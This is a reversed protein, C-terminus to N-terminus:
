TSFALDGNACLALAGWSAGRTASPVEEVKAANWSSAALARLAELSSSSVGVFQPSPAARSSPPPAAASGNSSAGNEASGAPAKRCVVLAGGRPTRSWCLSAIEAAPVEVSTGPGGGAGAGSPGGAKRWVVGSPTCRLVGDTQENKKKKKKKKKKLNLHASRCVIPDDVFHARRKDKTQKKKEEERERSALSVPTEPGSAEALSLALLSLSCRPSLSSSGLKVPAGMSRSLSLALANSENPRFFLRVLGGRGALRVGPLELSTTM